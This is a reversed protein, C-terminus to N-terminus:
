RRGRSRETRPERRRGGADAGAETGAGGALTQPPQGSEALRVSVATGTQAEVFGALAEGHAALLAASSGADTLFTLM